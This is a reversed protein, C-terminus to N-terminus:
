KLTSIIQSHKKKEQLLSRYQHLPSISLTLQFLHSNNRQLVEHPCTAPEDAKELPSAALATQGLPLM